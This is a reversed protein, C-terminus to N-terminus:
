ILDVQGARQYVDLCQFSALDQTRTNGRQLNTLVTTPRSSATWFVSM